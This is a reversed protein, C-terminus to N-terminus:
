LRRTGRNFTTPQASVMVIGSMSMEGVAVETLTMEIWATVLGGLTGDFTTTTGLEMDLSDMVHEIGHLFAGVGESRRTAVLLALRVTPRVKPDTAYEETLECGQVSVSPLDSLGEVRSVPESTVQWGDLLKSAVNQAALRAQVAAVIGSYKGM